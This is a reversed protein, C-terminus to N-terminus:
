GYEIYGNPYETFFRNIINGIEECYGTKLNFTIKEQDYNILFYIAEEPNTFKGNPYGFVRYQDRWGMKSLDYSDEYVLGGFEKLVSIVADKNPNDAELVEKAWNLHRLRKDYFDKQIYKKKTRGDLNWSTITKVWKDYDCNMITSKNINDICVEKLKQYDKDPICDLSNNFWTHCGM